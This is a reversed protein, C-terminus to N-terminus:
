GDGGTAAPAPAPRSGNTPVAARNLREEELDLDREVDRIVATRVRGEDRLELLAAREVDLLHRRLETWAAVDSEEGEPV